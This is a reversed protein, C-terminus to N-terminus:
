HLQQTTCAKIEIMLANLNAEVKAISKSQSKVLKTIIGMDKKLDAYLIMEARMRRKLENDTSTM